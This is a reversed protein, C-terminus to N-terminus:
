IVTQRYPFGVEYGCLLQNEFDCVTGQDFKCDGMTLKIDDIAFSGVFTPSPELQITLVSGLTNQYPAQIQKWSRTVISGPARYIPTIYGILTTYFGVTLNFKSESDVYYWMSFCAFHDHDYPQMVPESVFEMKQPGKTKNDASFLLYHGWVSRTTHDVRPGVNNDIIFLLLNM